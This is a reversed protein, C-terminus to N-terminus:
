SEKMADRLLRFKANMAELMTQYQLGSKVLSVTEDDLNVNNGNVGGPDTSPVVDPTASAPEGITLADRLSGEFSVRRATFGPTDVNAINDAATRQRLALGRLASYIADLATDNPM